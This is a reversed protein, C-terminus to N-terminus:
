PVSGSILRTAQNFWDSLFSPIALGLWLVFALQIM